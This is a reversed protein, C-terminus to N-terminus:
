IVRLFNILYYIVNRNIDPLSEIIAIAKRLSEEKSDGEEKGVTICLQYKSTPIIPEALERLWLKLLSSPVHPDKIGSYDYNEMEIRNRLDSVLEIEGPVRFIGETKYGKLKLIADVLFVLIKPLIETQNKSAQKEM